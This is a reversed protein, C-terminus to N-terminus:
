RRDSWPMSEGRAKAENYWELEIGRAREKPCVMWGVEVHDRNQSTIYRLGATGGDMGRYYDSFRKRLGDEAKGVKMLQGGLFVKYVGPENPAKKELYAARLPARGGLKGMAEAVGGAARKLTGMLDKLAM